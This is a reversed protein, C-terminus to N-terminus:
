FCDIINNIKVLYLLELFYWLLMVIQLNKGVYHNRWTYIKNSIYIIKYVYIVYIIFFLNLSSIIVNIILYRTISLVLARNMRLLLM